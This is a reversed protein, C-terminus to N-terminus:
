RVLASLWRSVTTRALSFAITRPARGHESPRVPLPAAARGEIGEVRQQRKEVRDKRMVHLCREFAHPCRPAFPCGPPLDLLAPPLGPIGRLERGRGLLTAMSILAVALPALLTPSTPAWGHHMDLVRRVFPTVFWLWLTFSVYAAPSRAYLAFGTGAALVVYLINALGGGVGALLVAVGACFITLIAFVPRGEGGQPIEGGVIAGHRRLTAGQATQM